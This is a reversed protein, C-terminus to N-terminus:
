RSSRHHNGVGSTQLDTRLCRRNPTVDGRRDDDRRSRLAISAAIWEIKAATENRLTVYRHNTLRLGAMTCQSTAHADPICPQRQSLGDFTPPRAILDQYRTRVRVLVFVLQPGNRRDVRAM